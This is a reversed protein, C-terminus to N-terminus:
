FLYIKISFLQWSVSTTFTTCDRRRSHNILSVISLHKFIRVYNNVQSSDTTNSESEFFENNSPLSSPVSFESSKTELSSSSQAEDESAMMDDVSTGSSATVVM